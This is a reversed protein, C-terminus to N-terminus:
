QTVQCGALDTPTPVYLNRNMDQINAPVAVPMVFTSQNLNLATDLTLRVKNGIVTSSDIKIIAGGNAVSLDNMFLLGLGSQMTENFNVDITNTNVINASVLKPAVKDIISTGSALVGVSIPNMYNDFTGIPAVTSVSGLPVSDIVASAFTLTIVSGDIQTSNDKSLVMINQFSAVQAPSNNYYFDSAKVYSLPGNYEVQLQTPSIGRARLFTPTMTSVSALVIPSDSVAATYNGALDKIVITRLTTLSTSLPTNDPFDLIVSKNDSAPTIVVTPDLAVYSPSTIGGTLSIQYDSLNTISTLDMPESFNVKIKKYTSDILIATPPSPPTTDVVTFSNTAAAVPNGALDTPGTISITYNGGPLPTDLNLNVSNNAGNCNTVNGSTGVINGGTDRIIYNAKNTANIGMAESYVVLITKDKVSSVSVITPPTNDPIANVTFMIQATDNTNGYYDTVTSLNMTIFNTAGILLGAKTIEVTSKDNDSKYKITATGNLPTGNVYIDTIRPLIVAKNFTIDLISLGDAVSSVEAPKTTDQVLNLPFSTDSICYNAADKIKAGMISFTHMGSSLRVSFNITVSTHKYPVVTDDYVISSMGYASLDYGDMKYANFIDAGDVPESFIVNISTNGCPTVSVVTPITLDIFNVSFVGTTITEVLDKSRVNSITITSTAQESKATSYTIIVSCNDPQLEAKEYSNQMIISNDTYNSINEASMEDVPKNFVVKIQKLNLSTVSTVAIAPIKPIIFAASNMTSSTGYQVSYILAQDLNTVANVAVVSLTITTDNVVTMNTPIVTIQAGGNISVSVKFDSLKALTLPKKDLSITLAGATATVSVIKAPAAAAIADQDLKAKLTTARDDVSKLRLKYSNIKDNDKLKSVADMATNELPIIAAIDQSTKLPANEVAKVALDATVLAIKDKVVNLRDNYKSVSDANKIQAINDVAKKLLGTVNTIDTGSILQATEVASVAAEAVINNVKDKIINLRSNLKGVSDTDAVKAINGDAKLILASVTTVDSASDLKAAEVAKVSADAPLYLSLLSAKDTVVKLRATLGAAKNTDKVKGIAETAKQVLIKVAAIDTVTNIPTVEVNKVASEAATLLSADSTTATITNQADTAKAIISNIVQIRAMFGKYDSTTSKIASVATKAAQVAKQANTLNQKSNVLDHTQDVLAEAKSVAIDAQVSIQSNIKSTVDSLRKALANYTTAYTKGYTGVKKVQTQANNVATQATRVVFSAPNVLNEAKVVLTTATSIQKKATAKTVATTPVTSLLTYITLVFVMMISIRKKRRYM